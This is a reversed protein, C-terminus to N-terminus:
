FGRKRVLFSLLYEAAFVKAPSFRAPEGRFYRASTPAWKHELSYPDAGGEQYSAAPVTDAATPPAEHVSVMHPCFTLPFHLVRPLLRRRGEPPGQPRSPRRGQLPSRGSDRQARPFKKGNGPTPPFAAFIFKREGVGRSRKRQRKLAATPRQAGEEMATVYWHNCKPARLADARTQEPRRGGRSEPEKEVCM